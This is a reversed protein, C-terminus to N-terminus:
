QLVPPFATLLCKQFVLNGLKREFYETFEAFHRVDRRNWKAHLLSASGDMQLFNSLHKPVFGELQMLLERNDGVLSRSDMNNWFKRGENSAERVRFDARFCYM